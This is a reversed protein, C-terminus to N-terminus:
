TNELDWDEMKLFPVRTLLDDEVLVEESLFQMFVKFKLSDPDKTVKAISQMPPIYPSLRSISNADEVSVNEIGMTLEEEDLDQPKTPQKNKDM